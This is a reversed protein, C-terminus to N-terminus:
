DDKSNIQKNLSQNQANLKSIESEFEQKKVYGFIAFLKKLM